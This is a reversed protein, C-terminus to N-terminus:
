SHSKSDAALPPSEPSATSGYRNPDGADRNVLWPGATAAPDATGDSGAAETTDPVLPHAQRQPGAGTRGTGRAELSCSIERALKLDRPDEVGGAAGGGLMNLLRRSARPHTHYERRKRRRPRTPASSYLNWGAIGSGSQIRLRKCAIPRTDAYGAVHVRNRDIGEDDVFFRLALREDVPSNGTPPFRATSRAFTLIVRSVSMMPLCTPLSRSRRWSQGASGPKLVASGSNFLVRDKVQIIIGRPSM